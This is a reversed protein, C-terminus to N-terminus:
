DFSMVQIPDIFKEGEKLAFYFSGKKDTGSTTGIKQGRKVFEYVKVDMMDLKGYWSEENNKHQIIVTRGTKEKTGVFVVQGDKAAEVSSHPPTEVTIGNNEKNFRDTVEGSVPVEFSRSGDSVTESEGGSRGGNLDPLFGVPQGLHKEYWDSVAVFQFDETMAATITKKVPLLREDEHHEMWYVASFLLAALLSQVFLRRGPFIPQKEEQPPERWEPLREYRHYADWDRRPRIAQPRIKLLTRKKREQHRKRFEDHRNM